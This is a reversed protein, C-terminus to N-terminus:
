AGAETDGTPREPRRKVRLSVSCELTGARAAIFGLVVLLVVIGGAATTIVELGSM